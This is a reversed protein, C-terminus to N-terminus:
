IMWLVTLVVFYGIGAGIQWIRIPKEEEMFKIQGDCGRAEMAIEFAQAKRLSLVLLNGGIKGFTKMSTKWDAYGNRAQAATRLQRESDGIIFIFRYILYMLDIILNPVHLRSLLNIWEGSPTSLALMYLASVAGIAKLFIEAAILVSSESFYIYFWKLHIWCDGSVEASVGIAIALTGVFLFVSPIRFLRIYEALPIKGCRVNLLGMSLIVFISVVVKDMGVCCLLTLVAFGAKWAPNWPLMHSRYAYQDMQIGSKKGKRSM